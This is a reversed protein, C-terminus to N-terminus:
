LVAAVLRGFLYVALSGLLVGVLTKPGRARDAAHRPTPLRGRAQRATPSVRRRPDVEPMGGM